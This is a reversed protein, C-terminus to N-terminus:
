QRLSQSRASQWEWAEQLTPRKGNMVFHAVALTLGCALVIVIVVVIIADKM